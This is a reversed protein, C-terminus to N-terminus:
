VEAINEIKVKEYVIKLVLKGLWCWLCETTSQLLFETLIKTNRSVSLKNTTTSQRQLHHFFM